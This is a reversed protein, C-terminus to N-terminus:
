ITQKFYSLQIALSLLNGQSLRYTCFQAHDLHYIFNIAHM